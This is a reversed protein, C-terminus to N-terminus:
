DKSAPLTFERVLRLFPELSGNLRFIEDPGSVNLKIQRM